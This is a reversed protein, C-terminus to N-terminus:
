ALYAAASDRGRGAHSLAQARCALLERRTDEDHEGLRLAIDWLAAALDFALAEEARRAGQVALESAQGAAGAAELHRVVTLPDKLAIPSSALVFALREHYRRRRSEPVRAVIAERVRDHYPEVPDHRRTGGTRILSNARLADIAKTIAHPAYGLAEGVIGQPLPAGAVAVLEVVRRAQHEMRTIRAWLADDFRHSSARVDPPHRVLEHLFMPHGGTDEILADADHAREPAILAVLERGEAQSLRELSITHVYGPLVPISGADSRHTIVVLIRPANP